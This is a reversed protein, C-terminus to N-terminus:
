PACTRWLACKYATAPVFHGGYSEGFLFFPNAAREAHASFFAHLFNLMDRSVGAEDHDM